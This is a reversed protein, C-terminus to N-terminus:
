AAAPARAPENILGAELLVDGAHLEGLAPLSVCLRLEGSSGLRASLTGGLSDTLRRALTLGLGLHARDSRSDSRRWFPEFFRELDPAAIGEVPNCVEIQIRGPQDHTSVSCAVHPAPAAYEVANAVLNELVMELATESTSVLVPAPADVTISGGRAVAHPTHRECLRRLMAGPDVRRRESLAARSDHRSLILLTEVMRNMQLAVGLADSLSERAESASRARSLSVELLMRLEAVPTRLEHAASDTFRRERAFAEDLRALLDNLRRCIPRLERPLDREDFRRSLSEVGITNV